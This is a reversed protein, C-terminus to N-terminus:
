LEIIKILHDPFRRQLLHLRLLKYLQLIVDNTQINFDEIIKNDRDYNHILHSKEFIM